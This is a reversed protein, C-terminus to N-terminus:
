KAFVSVEEELKELEAEPKEKDHKEDKSSPEVAKNIDGLGEGILLFQAGEYDLTEPTVPM